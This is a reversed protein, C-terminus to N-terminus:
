HAHIQAHEPLHHFVPFGPMSCDMLDCLTPHSQAVSGCYYCYSGGFVPGLGLSYQFILSSIQIFLTSNFNGSFSCFATPDILLSFFRNFFFLQTHTDQLNQPSFKRFLSHCKLQIKSHYSPKFLNLSTQHILTLVSM